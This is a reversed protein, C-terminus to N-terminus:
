WAISNIDYPRILGDLKLAVQGWSNCGNARALLKEVHTKIINWDFEELVLTPPMFSNSPRLALASPSSVYFEFYVSNSQNNEVCLDLEILIDFCEWNEPYGSDTPELQESSIQLLEIKM